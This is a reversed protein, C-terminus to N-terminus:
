KGKCPRDMCADRERDSGVCDKGGNQPAPNNCKRIRERNGNGCQADCKGWAEWEGFSGDVLFSVVISTIGICKFLISM